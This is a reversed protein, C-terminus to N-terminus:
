VITRRDVRTVNRFYRTIYLEIEDVLFCCMHLRLMATSVPKGGTRNVYLYYIKLPTTTTVDALINM